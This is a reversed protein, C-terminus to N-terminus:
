GPSPELSGELTFPTVFEGAAHRAALGLYTKVVYRLYEREADRLPRVVRGPVGMVMSGDPVQTGPTVVAGAAIICEAGICCDDLVTARTGILSLPGVSTCHVVAHHGISVDDAIELPVNAKCHLISGDQINVRAGVRIPAVDGRITCHHWVSCGEGLQVDGVIVASEAIYVSGIQRVRYPNM